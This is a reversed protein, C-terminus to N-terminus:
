LRLDFHSVELSPPTDAGAPAGEWRLACTPIRWCILSREKVLLVLGSRSAVPSVLYGRAAIRRLHRLAAALALPLPNAWLVEGAFSQSFFDWCAARPDAWRACFRPLLPTARVMAELSPAPLGAATLDRWRERLWEPDM